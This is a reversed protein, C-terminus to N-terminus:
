HQDAVPVRFERCSQFIRVKGEEVTVKKGMLALCKMFSDFGLEGTEAKDCTEFAATLHRIEAASLFDARSVNKIGPVVAGSGEDDDEDDDNAELFDVEDEGEDSQEDEDDESDREEVNRGNDPACSFCSNWSPASDLSSHFDLVKEKQITMKV